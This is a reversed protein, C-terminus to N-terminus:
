TIVVPTLSYLADSNSPDIDKDDYHPLKGLRANDNQTDPHKKKVEINKNNVYQLLKENDWEADDSVDNVHISKVKEIISPISLNGNTDEIYNDFTDKIQPKIQFLKIDEKGAQEIQQALKQTTLNQAEIKGKYATLGSREQMDKVADEVSLHKSKSNNMVSNIQDYLSSEERYSKVSNKEINKAFEKMWGPLAPSQEIDDHARDIIPMTRYGNKKMAIYRKIGKGYHNRQVKWASLVKMILSIM